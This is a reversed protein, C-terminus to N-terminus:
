RTRAAPKGRKVPKTAARATTPKPRKSSKPARPAKVAKTSKASKAAAAKTTARKPSKAAKPSKTPASRPRAPAAEPSRGDEAAAAVARLQRELAAIKRHAGDLETRGPAGMAQVLQESIAQAANRLQMQANTLEGFTHRYDASLAVEAWAEEAADVWLNFLARASDIQRGPEEHEALKSEFREFAGQSAKALLASYGRQADQVRLQAKGLAQLREQHERTFGFAPMGLVAMSQSRLGDLWPAAAESWQAINDLGPGRLGQMLGEFPHANVFAARWAEVVDRAAHDRGAFRGAVQQMQGYWDGCQRQFRNLLDGFAGQANAQRTWAGLADGLGQKGVDFSFGAAGDRLADAWMGWYRQALAASDNATDAM